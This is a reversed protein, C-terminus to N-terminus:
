QEELWVPRSRKLRYAKVAPDSDPILCHGLGAPLGDFAGGRVPALVGAYPVSVAKHVVKGTADEYDCYLNFKGKFLGTRSAFTLTVNAPNVEDYEYSVDGEESVKKPKAGKAVSLSAGAATVPVTEPLVSWDRPEGLADFYVTGETEAGFLYASALSAGTGYFGGCADLLLSFGDPGGRGPNEWRIFWGIDRDTEVTRTEPDIWLLGGAWGKKAYLPAFFPVCAAPGCGDFLLLRGAQTVKTGDALVGAVKASGKAGVTLTLYGAGQPAADVADSASLTGGEAAPLAVTYYGKFADLLAAAATDGSEAFRNRAGDLTLGAAGAKGGSLTGWIRNQRVFLDLREGGSATLETHQTGDTGPASWATGKFSVSGGQLVAKATLKGALGTVKLSLTGRVASAQGGGFAEAAYLYGDYAGATALEADGAPDCLYGTGGGTAVGGAPPPPPLIATWKAYLTWLGDAGPVIDTPLVQEGTGGPGTWWGGFAYGSRSPSPLNGFPRGAILRLMPMDGAGSADLGIVFTDFSRLSPYGIGEEIKWVETFDWELFTASQKMQLTSCATGGASQEPDLGSVDTDWFCREVVDRENEERYLVFGGADHALPDVAVAAYCESLRGGNYCVFGGVSTNIYNTWIYGDYANTYVAYSGSLPAMVAGSAYCREIVGYNECALAGIAYRGSILCDTLGLNAVVAGREIVSFLATGNGEASEARNISLGHVTHGNGDFFGAFLNIPRFGEMLSEDTGEDNWQATETADIDQELWYRGDSPYAPDSGIKQVDAISSLGRFTRFVALVSKHGDMRVTIVPSLPDSVAGVWKVFENQGPAAVATLTVIAGPAHRDAAPAATVGGAGRTSATLSFPHPFSLLYPYSVGNVIGWEASFDWGTFTGQQQMHATTRGEGGASLALGSAETDWYSDEIIFAEEAYGILGGAGSMGDVAGAAYCTRVVGDFDCYGALGGVFNQGSAAGTAYCSQVASYDYLSGILGGVGEDGEVTGTAYCSQVTSYGCGGVLGGTVYSGYVAGTAYCSQVASDDSLSGILGGANYQGYVAGTAYCSQVTSDGCWGVLGGVAEDGSVVGAVSCSQLTSEYLTGALCGVESGGIVTCDRLKVNKVFAGNELFGFLGVAGDDPRNITLRSVTHGQGDLIGAFSDHWGIPEFGAGENWGATESADIDNMVLYAADPMWGDLGSGVKQLDAATRIEFAPMVRVARSDTYQGLADVVRVWYSSAATVPPTTFDAGQGAPVLDEGDDGEGEYWFYTLPSTSE